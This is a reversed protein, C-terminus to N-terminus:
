EDLPVRDPAIPGSRSNDAIMGEYLRRLATVYESIRFSQEFRERGCVSISERLKEDSRIQCIAAKLARMDGPPVLLCNTGSELVEAISGVPTAIIPIGASLAELIAMPLGENFSPLVLVDAGTLYNLCAEHPIWGTFHCLHDIGLTQAETKYRAVEGGGAATLRVPTGATNLESIVRLLESVGKRPSLNAILLLKLPETSFSPAMAAQQRQAQFRDPIANYMVAVREPTVGVERLLHDKWVEGLVVNLDAALITRRYWFRSLPNARAFCEIFEAGHHHLLVPIRLGRALWLLLGKRFFSMRESINLHLLLRDGGIKWGLLRVMAALTYIPSVIASGRGRADLIDIRLDPHSRLVEDHISRAVTGMGGGAHMGGPSVLVIRTNRTPGPAPRRRSDLDNRFRSTQLTHSM